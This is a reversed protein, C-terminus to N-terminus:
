DGTFFQKETRFTQPVLKPCGIGLMPGNQFFGSVFPTGLGCWFFGVEWVCIPYQEFTSYVGVELPWADAQWHFYCKEPSGFFQQFQCMSVSQWAVSADTCQSLSLAPFRILGVENYIQSRSAVGMIESECMTACQKQLLQFAESCTSFQLVCSCPLDGIFMCKFTISLGSKWTDGTFNRGPQPMSSNRPIEGPRGREAHNPYSMSCRWCNFHIYIYSM